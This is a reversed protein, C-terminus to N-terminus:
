RRSVTAHAPASGPLARSSEALEALRWRLVLQAAERAIAPTMKSQGASRETFVIPHERLRLGRRECHWTNEVQFAYGNSTTELVGAALVAERRWARFGSTADQTQLRLTTRAYSNAAWSVARRHWPWNVTRGGPLYRSGIAVDNTRLLKLLAPIASVPHSGDADMQVVADFGRRLATDFGARYASGLGDKAPRALLHIWTGFGPHTRVLEQTQDPSNDDVVLVEISDDQLDARISGIRRLLAEITSAENYTPTIILCRM